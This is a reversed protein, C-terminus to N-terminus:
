TGKELAKSSRSYKLRQAIAAFHSANLDTVIVHFCNHTAQTHCFLFILLRDNVHM